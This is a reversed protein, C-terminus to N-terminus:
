LVLVELAIKRFQVEVDQPLDHCIRDVDKESVDWDIKRIRGSSDVVLLAKESIQLEQISKSHIIPGYFIRKWETKNEDTM